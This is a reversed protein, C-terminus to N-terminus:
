LGLTQAIKFRLAADAKRCSAPKHRIILILRIKLMFVHVFSTLL